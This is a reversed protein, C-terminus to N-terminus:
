AERAYESDVLGIWGSNKGSWWALALGAVAAILLGVVLRRLLVGERITEGEYVHGRQFGPVGVEDDDNRHTNEQSPGPKGISFASNFLGELGTEATEARRDRMM